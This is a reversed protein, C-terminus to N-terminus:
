VPEERSVRLAIDDVIFEKGSTSSLTLSIYQAQAMTLDPIQKPVRSSGTWTETEVRSEEGFDRTLTASLTVDGLVAAGTPYIPKLTVYVDRVGGKDGLGLTVYKTQFSPTPNTNGSVTSGSPVNDDYAGTNVYSWVIPYFGGTTVRVAAPILPYDRNSLSSPLLASAMVAQAAGTAVTWGGTVIGAQTPRGLRVHFVIQKTPWEVPNVTDSDAPVWWRVQGRRPDYVGHSTATAPRLNVGSWLTEIDGGLYQLGAGGIRYPGRESLFYLCPNGSEDEGPVISKRSIAGVVKTVVVPKYPVEANGTRVLKYIAYRKFVYVSGNLMEMGTIEGGEDSDLDLYQDPPFREDDALVGSEGYAAAATGTIASWGVRSTYRTTEFAGAILLRNEDVLLYKPSWPPTFAGSEPAVIAPFLTSYATPATTDTFTTTAVAQGAQVLYYSVNDASGWVRWGTATDPTTPKTVVVGTGTGSPTFSLAASLDSYTVVGSAPQYYFQVKYYRLTAAYSGAGTNAATPASPTSIGVRRFATGDWCHLRDLDGTKEYAVYLKSNFSAADTPLTATGSDSVGVNTWSSGSASRFMNTASAPLAWIETASLVQSPTHRHLIGISATNSPSTILRRIGPRTRVAGSNTLEVDTAALLQADGIRHPPDTDNLGGAFSELRLLTTRPQSM